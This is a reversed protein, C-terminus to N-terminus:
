NDNLINLKNTVIEASRITYIKSSTPHSYSPKLSIQVCSCLPSFIFLDSLRRINIGASHEKSGFQIENFLSSFQMFSNISKM